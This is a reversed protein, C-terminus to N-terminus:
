RQMTEGDGTLGLVDGDSVQFSNCGVSALDFVPAGARESRTALYLGAAACRSSSHRLQKRQCDANGAELCVIAQFSILISQQVERFLGPRDWYM